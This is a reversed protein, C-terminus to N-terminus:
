GIGYEDAIDADATSFTTGKNIFSYVRAFAWQEKGLRATRPATANKEFTGSIRVSQPNSKWAGIGRNYVKQLAAKPLETATALEALSMSTDPPLGLKRLVEERHTPM